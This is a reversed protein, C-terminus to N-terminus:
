SVFVCGSEALIIHVSVRVVINEPNIYRFKVSLAIKDSFTSINM